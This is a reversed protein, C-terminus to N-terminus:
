THHHIEFSEDSSVWLRVKKEKKEFEVCSFFFVVSSPALIPRVEVVNTIGGATSKIFMFDPFPRAYGSVQAARDLARLFCLGSM